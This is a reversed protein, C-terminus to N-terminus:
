RELKLKLPRLVARLVECADAQLTADERLAKRSPQYTSPKVRVSARTQKRRKRTM